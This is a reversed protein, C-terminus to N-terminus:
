EEEEHRILRQFGVGYQPHIGSSESSFCNISGTPKVVPKTRWFVLTLNLGLLGLFVEFQGAVRDHEVGIHVLDFDVWNLKRSFPNEWQSYFRFGLRLRRGLKIDM